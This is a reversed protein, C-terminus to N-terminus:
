IKKKLFPFYLNTIDQYDILYVFLSVGIISLIIQVIIKLKSSIGSSNSYKIKKYDDFVFIGFTRCYIYVFCFTLIQYIQGVFYLNAILGILIIVGGM